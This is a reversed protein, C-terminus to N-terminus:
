YPQLMYHSDQYSQTILEAHDRTRALATELTSSVLEFVPRRDKLFVDNTSTLNVMRDFSTTVM